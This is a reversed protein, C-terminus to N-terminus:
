QLQVGIGALAHGIRMATFVLGALMVILSVATAWRWKYLGDVLQKVNDLAKKSEMWREGCLQEHGDIRDMARQALGRALHDETNPM